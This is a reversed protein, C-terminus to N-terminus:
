RRPRPTSGSHPRAGPRASKEPWRPSRNWPGHTPRGATSSGTPQPVGGGVDGRAASRDPRRVGGGPSHARRLPARPRYPAYGLRNRRDGIQGFISGRRRPGDARGGHCNLARQSNKPLTEPACERRRTVTRLVREGPAQDEQRARSNSTTRARAPGSASPIRRPANGPARAVGGDRRRAEKMAAHHRTRVTCQNDVAQPPPSATTPPTSCCRWRHGGLDAGRAGDPVVALCTCGTPECRRHPSGSGSHATPSQRGSSTRTSFASSRVRIATRPM